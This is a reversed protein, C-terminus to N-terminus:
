PLSLESLIREALAGYDGGLHHGGPFPIAKGASPPLSRCPSDAEDEGYLCLLGEGKLDLLAPLVPRSREGEGGVWYSLHFEFDATRGPAVLAIGALSRRLEPPLERVLFPLVEAGMSYGVLLVKAGENGGRAHRIVRALDAAATAPTRPTWFYRLSDLGTVAIGRAALREGLSRDISAWGGDGSVIVAVTAAAKGAVPLEVLPLDGVAPAAPLAGSPEPLEKLRRFAERFRPLWNAPVSFGHGVKPLSVLEGRPVRAVYAKTEEPLCVQDITGQFAIWPASLNAAPEFLVGKGKPGKRWELGAGRCPPKRLDLDPCFGLSLAGRFTGPPAQALVAYVLTAGSSYGVLIPATYRPWGLKKQLYQGLAEFDAAPYACKGPGKELAALYKRIDVGAVLADLTALQRAMDVVGLNWGGDGSVFLVVRSPREAGRYLHVTGFPGFSVTEEGMEPSSPGHARGKGPSPSSPAAFAPAPPLLLLLLFAAALRLLSPLATRKM